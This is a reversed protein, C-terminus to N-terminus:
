VPQNAGLYAEIVAPDCQVTMPPGECIVRGQNLVIIHDCMRMIMSIDHDIVLIGIGYTDRIQLITKLLEDTEAENMGAAPEDLLLYKPRTVLARAIELKRQAGYDLTSAQRYINSSLGVERIADIANRRPPLRVQNKGRIIAGIEVNELVTLKEFLRVHQFTRALGLTSIEHSPLNTVDLGDILIEGSKPPYVGSIVNLLTTKGSGNPGILGVIQSPKLTGSVKDLAQIGGFQKSISRVVLEEQM